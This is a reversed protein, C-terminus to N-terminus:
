PICLGRFYDCSSQGLAQQCCFGMKAECQGFNLGSTGHIDTHDLANHAAAFVYVFLLDRVYALCLSIQLWEAVSFDSSDKPKKRRGKGKKKKFSTEFADGSWADKSYDSLVTSVITLAVLTLCGLLRAIKYAFVTSGGQSVIHVKVDSIIGEHPSAVPNLLM